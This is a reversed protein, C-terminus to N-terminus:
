ITLTIATIFDLNDLRLAAHISAPNGTTSPYEKALSGRRIYFKPLDPTQILSALVIINMFRILEAKSLSRHLLKSKYIKALQLIAEALM